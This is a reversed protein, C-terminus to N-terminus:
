PQQRAAKFAVFTSSLLLIIRKMPFVPKEETAGNGDEVCKTSQGADSDSSTSNTFSSSMSESWESSTSATSATGMSESWDPDSSTSNTSSSSMSESWESGDVPDHEHRWPGHYLELSDTLSGLSLLASSQSVDDLSYSEDDSDYDDESARAKYRLPRGLLDVIEQDALAARCFPCRPLRRNAEVEKVWQRM